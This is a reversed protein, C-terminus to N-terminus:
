CSRQKQEILTHGNEEVIIDIEIPQEEVVALAVSANHVDHHTGEFRM